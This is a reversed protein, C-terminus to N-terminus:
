FDRLGLSVVGGLGGLDGFGLVVLRGLFGVFADEVTKSDRGPQAPRGSAEVRLSHGELGLGLIWHRM